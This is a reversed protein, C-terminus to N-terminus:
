QGSPSPAAPRRRIGALRSAVRQRLRRAWEALLSDGSQEARGLARDYAQGRVADALPSSGKGALLQVLQKVQELNEQLSPEEAKRSKGATGRRRQIRRRVVGMLVRAALLVAVSPPGTWGLASLVSPLVTEVLGPGHEVAFDALLERIMPRLSDRKVAAETKEVRDKLEAAMGLSKEIREIRQGSSRRLEDLQAQTDALEGSLQALRHSIGGAPEGQPPPLAAGPGWPDNGPLPQAPLAPGAGLLQALFKRIRGCYTGEVTRGDTGWLVAVLEGQQNFVPGGSDGERAMGTLALTEHTPTSATRAYGLAQGQNCWYRGDPGYGCSTLAQGPQPADAAIAVPDAQPAAIRLVALDWDHDIAVLAADLSQGDPFTVAIGQGQGRFLHACTLVLGRAADKQILTGSGYCRSGALGASMVRVVAPHEAGPPRCVGGACEAQALAAFLLLCCAAPLLYRSTNM